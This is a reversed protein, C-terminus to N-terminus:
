VLYKGSAEYEQSIDFLCGSVTCVVYDVHSFVIIYVVEIYRHAMDQHGSIDVLTLEIYIRVLYNRNYFGKGRTSVLDTPIIQDTIWWTAEDPPQGFGESTYPTCVALWTMWKYTCSTTYSCYQVSYQVVVGHRNGALFSRSKIAQFNVCFRLWMTDLLWKRIALTGEFRGKGPQNEEEITRTKPFVSIGHTTYRTTCVDCGRWKMENACVDHVYLKVLSFWLQLDWRM